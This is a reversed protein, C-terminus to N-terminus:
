GGDPRGAGAPSGAGEPLGAGASAGIGARSRGDKGLQGATVPGEAEGAAAAGEGV